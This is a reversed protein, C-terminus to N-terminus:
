HMRVGLSLADRALQTGNVSLGFVSPWLDPENGLQWSAAGLGALQTARLLATANGAANWGGAASRFDVANLTFLLSLGTAQSFRLLNAWLTTNM